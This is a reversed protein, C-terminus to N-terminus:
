FIRDIIEALYGNSIEFNKDASKKKELANILLTFYASDVGILQEKLVEIDSLDLKSIQFAIKLYQGANIQWGRRIFKRTRILSCIPYLSGQYRLEKNLICELAVPNLTLVGTSSEWYNTCHVFDYNEHIEAANGYFRIILQIKNSLTIANSTLFLPSYTKIQEPEDRGSEEEAEEIEEFPTTDDAFDLDGAIGESPVLVNVRGTEDDVEVTFNTDNRINYKYVYYEAVAVVTEKSTFYLDYDKVKEGLLMNVISGGTIITNKEALKKVSEDAISELWENFKKRLVSKITKAKM